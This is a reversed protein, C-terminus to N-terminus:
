SLIKLVNNITARQTLYPFLYSDGGNTLIIDPDFEKVTEGLQLLKEGEDGSDITRAKGSSNRTNKDIPDNFNAIKGKKAIEM